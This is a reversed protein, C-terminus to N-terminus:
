AGLPIALPGPLSPRCFRISTAGDRGNAGAGLGTGNTVQQGLDCALQYVLTSPRCADLVRGDRERDRESLVKPILGKYRLLGLFQKEQSMKNPTMAQCQMVNCIHLVAATWMARATVAIGSRKRRVGGCGM